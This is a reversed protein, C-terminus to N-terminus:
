LINKIFESIKKPLDKSNEICRLFESGIIAGDLYSCALKFSERDRIGFGIMIPCKLNLNKLYRYYAEQQDQNVSGGTVGFSSVAYIFTSSSQDIERIREEATQPTILFIMSLGAKELSLKWYSEYEVKPLDPIILGDVGSNVCERIFEEIGFQLVPNYYGMLIIPVNSKERIAKVDNFIRFLDVGQSLAIMSTKQITEGDAIPDSFPIGLEIFGVGSESLSCCVEITSDITPFGATTFISLVKEQSKFVKNIESIGNRM